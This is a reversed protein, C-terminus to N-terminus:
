LRPFAALSATCVACRVMAGQDRVQGQRESRDAVGSCELSEKREGGAKRSRSIEGKGGFVVVLLLGSGDGAWNERGIKLQERATRM